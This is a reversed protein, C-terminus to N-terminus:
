ENYGPPAEGVGSWSLMNRESELQLVRARLLALQTSPTPGRSTAGNSSTQAGEQQAVEEQLRRVQELEARHLLTKESLEGPEVIPPVPVDVPPVPVRPIATRSEVEPPSTVADTGVEHMHSPSQSEPTVPRVSAEAGGRFPFRFHLFRKTWKPAVLRPAAEADFKFFRHTGQLRRRRLMFFIACAIGLICLTGLIGGVVAQTKKSRKQASAAGIPSAAPSSASAASPAVTSSASTLTSAAASPRSITSSSSTSLPPASTPSTPSTSSTFSVPATPVVSALETVPSVTLITDFGSCTLAGSTPHCPVTLVSTRTVTEVAPAPPTVTFIGTSLETEFLTTTFGALTVTKTRVRTAVILETRVGTLENAKPAALGPLVDINTSLSSESAVSPFTTTRETAGSFTLTRTDIPAVKPAPAFPLSTTYVTVLTETLSGACALPGSTPCPLTKTLTDTVRHATETLFGSCALPGSTPCPVVPVVVTPIETFTTTVDTTGDAATGRFNTLALFFLLPFM